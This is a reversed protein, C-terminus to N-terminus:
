TVKLYDVLIGSTQRLRQSMMALLQVLIKVGLRPQDHIIHALTDRSLVAFVTPESAVCTAFRREGDVVAMEGITTGPLVTSVLKQRHQTDSKLIDVKGEILLVMYDGPDGERLIVGGKGARYLKLFGALAEIDAKEFGSFFRTHAVLEAIQGAMVAGEGILVFSSPAHEPKTDTMQRGDVAAQAMKM